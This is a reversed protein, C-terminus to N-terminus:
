VVQKYKTRVVDLALSDYDDHDFPEDNEIKRTLEDVQKYIEEDDENILLSEIEDVTENETDIINRVIDLNHHSNNSSLFKIDQRMIEDVDPNIQKELLYKICDENIKNKRTSLYFNVSLDHYKSYPNCGMNLLVPIHSHNFLASFHLCTCGDLSKYNVYFEKKNDDLKDNLISFFGVPFPLKDINTEWENNNLIENRFNEDKFVKSIFEIDLEKDLERLYLDIDNM